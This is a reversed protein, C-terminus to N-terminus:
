QVPVCHAFTGPLLAADTSPSLTLKGAIVADGCIARAAPPVSCNATYVPANSVVGAGDALGDLEGDDCGDLEGDDFGDLEGDDFGDPEGDDFGDVEGDDLGVLAGVDVGVADGVAM